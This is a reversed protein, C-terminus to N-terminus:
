GDFVELYKQAVKEIDLHSANVIPRIKPLVFDDLNLEYPSDYDLLEFNYPTIESIIIGNDGVIEKTGGSDTCIVPCGRSLAQIVVNPCHDLWALHIMYDSNQYIELCENPHLHGLFVVNFLDGLNTGIDGSGLVTLISDPHQKRIQQFLRINDQLRKQPHWNASCVFRKKYKKTREQSERWLIQQYNDQHVLMDKKTNLDIGNHIVHVNDRKGFYKEIMKRDFESQIIVKDVKNYADKIRANNQQFDKPSFWIGDVRLVTTAKPSPFMRPEIFCMYVDYESNYPVVEHGMKIFQNALRLGFSNPGSQSSFDVNDFYIKM